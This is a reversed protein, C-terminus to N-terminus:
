PLPELTNSPADALTGVQCSCRRETQLTIGTGGCDTCVPDDDSPPFDAYVADAPGIFALLHEAAQRVEDGYREIDPIGALMGPEITLVGEGNISVTVSWYPKETPERDERIGGIAGSM